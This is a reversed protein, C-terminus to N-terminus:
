TSLKSEVSRTWRSDLLRAHVLTSPRARSYVCNSM